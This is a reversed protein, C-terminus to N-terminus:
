IEERLGNLAGHRESLEDRWTCRPRKLRTDYHRREPRRYLGTGSHNDSTEIACRWREPRPFPGIGSRHDLLRESIAIGLQAAESQNLWTMESPAAKTIYIIANYSLGIRSLYAGLLANGVGTERGTNRDYAAHFGIRAGPQMFRESGGLWAAACASACMSNETVLTKFKKQHITEGITIGSVLNGGNSHFTVLANDLSSAKRVFDKGDEREIDGIVMIVPLGGVVSPPVVKIEAASAGATALLLLAICKFVTAINLKLVGMGGREPRPSRRRWCPSRVTIATIWMM